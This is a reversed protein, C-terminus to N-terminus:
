AAHRAEGRVLMYNGVRHLKGAETEVMTWHTIINHGANRLEMIRAPLHYVDLYRSGEFTSLMYGRGLFDLVRNCQTKADLGPFLDRIAILAAMKDNPIASSSM